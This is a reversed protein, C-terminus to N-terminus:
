KKIQKFSETILTKNNVKGTLVFRKDDGLKKNLGHLSVKGEASDISELFVYTTKRTNGSTFYITGNVTFENDLYACETLKFGAVNRYAEILSNSIQSELSSEQLDEISELIVDLKNADASFSENTGANAEVVLLIPADKAINLNETSGNSVKAQVALKDAGFKSASVSTVEAIKDAIMFKMGAQLESAKGDRTAAQSTSDVVGGANKIQVKSQVDKKFLTFYKELQDNALEGNFYTCLFVANNDDKDKALYIFAPGGNAQGSWGKALSDAAEYNVKTQAESMGIVMKGIDNVTPAATIQGGNSFYGKFGIVLFTKFRQSQGTHVVNGKKDLSIDTIGDAIANKLIWDAKEERTNASDAFKDIAASVKDKVAKGAQGIKKGIAKGLDRIGAEELPESQGIAKAEKVDSDEKEEAEKDAALMARVTSDSLPKKFEPENILKEFEDASVDLDAAEKEENLAETLAEGLTAETEEVDTLEEVSEETLEEVPEEVTMNNKVEDPLAKELDEKYADIRRQIAAKVQENKTKELEKEEKAIEARLYEIYENHAELKADLDRDDQVDEVLTEGTHIVFAEEKKEEEEVAEDDLNLAELDFDGLDEEGETPEEATEETGEEPIEETPLEEDTMPVEDTTIETEEPTAEGVKGVLTYGSENGCHQCVESVNVTNPDDESEVVDEQNKYFLTMCQPCQIIYKGVYSTLLDEPSDADLDVIKEIRELKAKAVEAERDEKAQGLEETSGIDYYEEFLSDFKSKRSFIETLAPRNAKIGENSVPVDIDDLAKFAAELDFKTVSEKM